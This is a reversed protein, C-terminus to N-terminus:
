SGFSVVQISNSALSLVRLKTAAYITDHLFRTFCTADAYCLSFNHDLSKPRYVHARPAPADFTGGGAHVSRAPHAPDRRWAADVGREALTIRWPLRGTTSGPPMDSERPDGRRVLGTTSSSSPVFLPRSTAVGQIISSRGRSHNGGPNSCRSWRAATSIRDSFLHIISTGALAAYLASPSSPSSGSARAWDRFGGARAVVMFATLDDLDAAM